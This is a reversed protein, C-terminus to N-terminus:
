WSAYLLDIHIRNNLSTQSILNRDFKSMINDARGSSNFHEGLVLPFFYLWNVRPIGFSRNLAMLLQKTNSLMRIWKTHICKELYVSDSCLIYKTADNLYKGINIIMENKGRIFSLIARTGWMIYCKKRFTWEDQRVCM